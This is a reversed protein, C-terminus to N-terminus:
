GITDHRLARDSAAAAAGRARDISRTGPFAPAAETTTEEIAADDPADASDGGCAFLSTAVLLTLTTRRM